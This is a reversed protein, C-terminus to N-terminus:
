KKKRKELKKTMRTGNPNGWRYTHTKSKEPFPDDPNYGAKGNDKRGTNYKGNQVSIRGASLGMRNRRMKTVSEEIKSKTSYYKGKIKKRWKMGKVGYHTLTEENLDIDGIFTPNYMM